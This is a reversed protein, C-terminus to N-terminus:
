IQSRSEDFLPTLLLLHARSGRPAVRIHKPNKSISLEERLATGASLYRERGKVYLLYIYKLYIFLLVFFSVLNSPSRNLQGQLTSYVLTAAVNNCRTVRRGKRTALSCRLYIGRTCMQIHSVGDSCVYVHDPLYVRKAIM